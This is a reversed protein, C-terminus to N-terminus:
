LFPAELFRKITSIAKKRCLYCEQPTISLSQLNLNLNLFLLTKRLPSVSFWGTLFDLIKRCGESPPSHLAMRNNNKNYKNNNTTLTATLSPFFPPHNELNQFISHSCQFKKIIYYRSAGIPVVDKKKAHSFSQCFFSITSLPILSRFFYTLSNSLILTKPNSDSKRLEYQLCITPICLHRKIRSM